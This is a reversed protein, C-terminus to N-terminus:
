WYFSRSLFNSAAGLWRNGGRESRGRTLAQEPDVSPSEDEPLYDPLEQDQDSGSGEEELPVLVQLCLTYKSNYVTYIYIYIYIYTYILATLSM